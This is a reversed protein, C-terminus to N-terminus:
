KSGGNKNVRINGLMRAGVLYTIAAMKLEQIEEKEIPKQGEVKYRNVFIRSYNDFARVTDVHKSILSFNIALESNCCPCFILLPNRGDDEEPLYEIEQTM